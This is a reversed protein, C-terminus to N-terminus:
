IFELNQRNIGWVSAMPDGRYSVYPLVVEFWGIERLGEKPPVYGLIYGEKGILNPYVVRGEEAKGDWKVRRGFEPINHEAWERPYLPEDKLIQIFESDCKLLEAKLVLDGWTLMNKM